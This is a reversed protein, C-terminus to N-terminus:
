CFRQSLMAIAKSFEPKAKGATICHAQLCCGSAPMVWSEVTKRSTAPVRPVAVGLEMDERYSPWEGKCRKRRRPIHRRASIRSALCSIGFRSANEPGARRSRDARGEATVSGVPAEPNSRADRCNHWRSRHCSTAVSTRLVSRRAIGSAGPDPEPLVALRDLGRRHRVLRHAGAVGRDISMAALM